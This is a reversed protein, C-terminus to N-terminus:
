SYSKISKCGKLARHLLAWTMLLIRLLRSKGSNVNEIGLCNKFRCLTLLIEITGLIDWDQPDFCLVSLKSASGQMDQRCYPIAISAPKIGSSTKTINLYKKWSGQLEGVLHFSHLQSFVLMFHHWISKLVWLMHIKKWFRPYFLFSYKWLVRSCHSQSLWLWVWFIYPSFNLM